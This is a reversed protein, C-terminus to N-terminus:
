LSALLQLGSDIIVGSWARCSGDCQLVLQVSNRSDTCDAAVRLGSQRGAISNSGM